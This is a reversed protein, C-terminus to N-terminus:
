FLHQTRVHNLSTYNQLTFLAIMQKWNRIEPSACDGICRPNCLKFTLFEFSKYLKIVLSVYM